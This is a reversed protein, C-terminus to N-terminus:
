KIKNFVENLFDIRYQRDKLYPQIHKSFIIRQEEDIIGISQIHILYNLIKMHTDFDVAKKSECEECRGYENLKRYLHCENCLELSM